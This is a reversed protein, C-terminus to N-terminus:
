EGVAITILRLAKIKKDLEVQKKILSLLAELVTYEEPKELRVTNVKSKM